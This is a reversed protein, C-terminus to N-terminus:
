NPQALYNLSVTSIKENKELESKIQNLEDETKPNKFKILYLNAAQIEDEIIAGSDNVIERVESVPTDNIFSVLLENNAYERGDESTEINSTENPAQFMNTVLQPKENAKQIWPIVVIGFLCIVLGITLFAWGKSDPEQPEEPEKEEGEENSFKFNM